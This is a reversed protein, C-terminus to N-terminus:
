VVFPPSITISPSSYPLHADPASGGRVYGIASLTGIILTAATALFAPSRLGSRPLILLALGICAFAVASYPSMRGRIANYAGQRDLFLLEDIGLRWDFLYQGLTALGLVSVFLALAQGGYQFIVPRQFDLMWLAAGAAILAGLAPAEPALPVSGPAIFQVLALGGSALALWPLGSRRAELLVFRAITAIPTTTM